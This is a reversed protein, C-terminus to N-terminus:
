SEHNKKKVLFYLLFFAQLLSSIVISPSGISLGFSTWFLIGVLYLVVFLPTKIENQKFVYFFMGSLSLFTAMLVYTHNAYDQM